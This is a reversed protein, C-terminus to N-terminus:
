PRSSSRRRFPLLTVNLSARPPRSSIWGRAAGSAMARVKFFSNFENLQLEGDGSKDCKELLEQVREAPPLRVNMQKAIREVIAVAEDTDISGSGDTDTASFEKKAFSQRASKDKLLGEAWHM